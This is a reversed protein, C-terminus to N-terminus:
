WWLGCSGGLPWTLSGWPQAEGAECEGGWCLQAPETSGSGGSVQSDKWKNAAPQRRCVTAMGQRPKPLNTLPQEGPGEARLPQALCSRM